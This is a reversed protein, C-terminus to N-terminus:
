EGDEKPKGLWALFEEDQLLYPLPPEALKQAWGYALVVWPLLFLRGERPSGTIDAWTWLLWLPVFLLMEYTQYLLVELATLLFLACGLGLLPHVALLVGAGGAAAIKWRWPAAPHLLLLGLAFAPSWFPDRRALSLLLGLWGIKYLADAVGMWLPPPVRRAWFGKLWAEHRTQLSGLGFM